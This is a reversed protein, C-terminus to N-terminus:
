VDITVKVNEEEADDTKVEREIKIGDLKASEEKLHGTYSVILVIMALAAVVIVAIFITNKHDKLNNM